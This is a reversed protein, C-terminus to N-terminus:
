RQLADLLGAACIRLVRGGVPAHAGRQPIEELEFAVPILAAAAAVAVSFRASCMMGSQM